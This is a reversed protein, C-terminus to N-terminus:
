SGLARHMEIVPDVLRYGMEDNLRLIPANAGDNNTRVREAGLAIAQAVTEYKLARAVGRGRVSPSTTTFFTWPVGRVPAYGIVSMGVIAHAERAIWFRDTRVGPNEFWFRHWEDYPEPRIPVTTPIDLVGATSLEYLKSLKDPDDDQDLTLLRMGQAKMLARSRAAGELLRDRGAVLDLEWLKSRRVEHYGLRELLQVEDKYSERARAVSISAQQGRLWSEAVDVLQSYRIESWANPHLIPRIWGFRTVTSEWPDHGAGVYAVAGGDQEALLEM